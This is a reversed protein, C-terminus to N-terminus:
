PGCPASSGGGCRASCDLPLVCRSEGCIRGSALVDGAPTCSPSNPVFGCSRIVESLPQGDIYQMAYYHVGHEAGVAHVPVIHPHDLQATAHAENQFRVLRKSDLMAALPLVKLAVRRQLSVQRAEFVIGMGGRGIERILEFDGLQASSRRIRLTSRYVGHAFNAAAEQLRHVDELYSRLAGALEPHRAVVEEVAPAQGQELSVLYADLIAAL